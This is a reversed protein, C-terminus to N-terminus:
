STFERIDAPAIQWQFDELLNVGKYGGGGVGRGGRLLRLSSGSQM